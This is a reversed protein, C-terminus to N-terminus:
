YEDLKDAKIYLYDYKYEDDPLIGKEQKIREIEDERARDKKNRLEILMDGDDYIMHRQWDTLQFFEMVEYPDNRFRENMEPDHLVHYLFSLTGPPISAM